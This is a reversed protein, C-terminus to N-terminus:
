DSGSSDEQQFRELISVIQQDFQSRPLVEDCGADRAASLSAEDVHPGYAILTADAVKERVVQVLSAIDLSRQALDILVLGVDTTIKQDVAVPAVVDIAIGRDRALSTMRSSFFLDSTVYLVGM